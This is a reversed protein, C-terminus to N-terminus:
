PCERYISIMRKGRKPEKLEVNINVPKCFDPKQLRLLLGLTHQDYKYYKVNFISMEKGVIEGREAETVNEINELSFAKLAKNTHHQVEEM